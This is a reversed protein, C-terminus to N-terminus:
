CLTMGSTEPSSDKFYCKLLRRRRSSNMSKWTNLQLLLSGIQSLLQSQWEGNERYRRNCNALQTWFLDLVDGGFIQSELILYYLFKHTINELKGGQKGSQQTSKTNPWTWFIEQSLIALAHKDMRTPTTIQGAVETVCRIESHWRSSKKPTIM